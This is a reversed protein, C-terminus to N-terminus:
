WAWAAAVEVLYGDGSKGIFRFARCCTPGERLVAPVGGWVTMEFPAPRSKGGCESGRIRRGACLSIERGGRRKIEVRRTLSSSDEERRGCNGICRFNLAWWAHIM